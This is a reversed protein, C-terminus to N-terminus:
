LCGMKELQDKAGTWDAISAPRYGYWILEFSGTIVRLFGQERPHQELLRLSERPTRARDRPLLRIDEFRAVSAWYACHIAERYDGCEAAALADHLWHRADSTVPPAEAKFEPAVTSKLLWRYVVYFLVVLAAFIFGWGLFNGTRESIHLFRLLKIVQEVMWRAIRARLIEVASPGTSAQFENRDLISKLRASAATLDAGAPTRDMEAAERQMTSLRTELSARLAKAKSPNLEMERLANSIEKTSVSYQREGSSVPWAAPLSMRLARVQNVDKSSEQIHSLEGQYSKLDLQRNASWGSVAASPNQAHAPSHAAAVFCLTCFGFRAALGV